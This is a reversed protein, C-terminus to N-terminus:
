KQAYLGVILITALVVKGLVNWLTYSNDLTLYDHKGAVATRKLRNLTAVAGIIFVALAAYAYWPSRVIGYAYTGWATVLLAVVPVAVALQSGLLSARAPKGSVANEREYMWAFYASLAISLMGFKLAVADQLGNLLAVIEFALAGTVAYDIWRMPQVGLKIGANERALLRTGRLLAFVASVGLFVVLLWRFEIEYLPHAAPALVTSNASALENKALHGLFVQVSDAKMVLGAIIAQIALALAAFVYGRHYRAVTKTVAQKTSSKAAATAKPAVPKKAKTSAAVKTTRAKAPAKKAKTTTAPKKASASKTVPKKTTKTKAKTTTTSKAM